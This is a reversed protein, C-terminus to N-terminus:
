RKMYHSRKGPTAEAVEVLMAIVVWGVVDFRAKGVPHPCDLEGHPERGEVQTAFSPFQSLGAM